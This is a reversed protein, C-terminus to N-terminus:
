PAAGPEAQPTGGPETEVVAPAAAVCLEALAEAPVPEEPDPEPLPDPEPEEPEPPTPVPEEPVLPVAVSEVVPEGDREAEDTAM